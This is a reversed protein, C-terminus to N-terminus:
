LIVTLGHTSILIFVIDVIKEFPPPITLLCIWYVCVNINNYKHLITYLIQDVPNSGYGGGGYVDYTVPDSM